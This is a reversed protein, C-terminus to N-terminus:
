QFKGVSLMDRDLDARDLSEHRKYGRAIHCSELAPHTGAELSAQEPRDLVPGLLCPMQEVHITVYRVDVLIDQEGHRRTRTQLFHETVEKVLRLKERGM